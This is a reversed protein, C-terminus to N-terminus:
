MSSQSGIQTYDPTFGSVFKLFIRTLNGKIKSFVIKLLKILMLISNFKIPHNLSSKLM